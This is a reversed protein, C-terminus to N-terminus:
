QKEDLADSSLGVFSFGDFDNVVPRSPKVNAFRADSNQRDKATVRNLNGPVFKTDYENVNPNYPPELQRQMLRAWDITSFFPHMLVESAGNPGCGLRKAPDRTLLGRIISVASDSFAPTFTVWEQKLITQFMIDRNRHYYPPKGAIMEYLLIGFSWWDAARGYPKGRLLEPAIYAATGCFTKAGRQESVGVKSLGFDTIRVHGKHDMLVNELKADRYIINVSHLHAIACGIEAAYFKAWSEPFHRRRRL